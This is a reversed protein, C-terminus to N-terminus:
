LFYKRNSYIKVVTFALISLTVDNQAHQGEAEHGLHPGTSAGASDQVSLLLEPPCHCLVGVVLAEIYVNIYILSNIELSQKLTNMDGDLSEDDHWQEAIDEHNMVTDDSDHAADRTNFLVEHEGESGLTPM